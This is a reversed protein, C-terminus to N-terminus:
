KPGARQLAEALVTALESRSFPKNLLLVGQRAGEVVVGETEAYGTMLILAIRPHSQRIEEIFGTGRQGGPLVVDSLIIAPDDSANEMVNKAAEVSEAAMVSYGLSELLRTVSDRVSPNDEVLLVTQGNGTAPKESAEDAASEPAIASRPLYLTVTTGEELESEISMAGGSQVAFGYVMSLGLGSGTGFEKTTYFPEIARRQTEDDMGSGTDHVCLRVFDGTLHPPTRGNPTNNLSITIVGGEPMADRANTGLNLIANSLLNIDILIPWCDATLELRVEIDERLTRRMLATTERVIEEPFVPSPAMTQQRAFALLRRVLEAGRDSSQIIPEILDRDANEPLALLEAHGRVATLLNNFDHAIGATLQGVAELKQAQLLRAENRKREELADNRAAELMEGMHENQNDLIKRAEFESVFVREHRRISQYVIFLFTTTVLAFAWFTPQEATRSFGIFSGAIIMGCFAYAAAPLPYLAIAGGAIMGAALAIFFAQLLGEVAPLIILGPYAWLMGLLAAQVVSRRYTRKSLSDPFPKSNRAAQRATFMSATVVVVLAWVVADLRVQDEFWLILLVSLANAVNAFMMTPTLRSIAFIRRALVQGTDVLADSETELTARDPREPLNM